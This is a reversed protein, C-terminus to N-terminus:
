YIALQIENSYRDKGATNALRVFQLRSYERIDRFDEFEQGRPILEVKRKQIQGEVWRVDQEQSLLDLGAGNCVFPIDYMRSVRDRIIEILRDKM